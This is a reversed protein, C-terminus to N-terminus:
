AGHVDRAVLTVGAETAARCFARGFRCSRIRSAPLPLGHRHERMPVRGGELMSSLRAARGASFCISATLLFSISNFGPNSPFTVPQLRLFARGLDLVAHDRLQSKDGIVHGVNRRHPRQRSQLIETTAPLPQRPLPLLSLRSRDGSCPIGSVFKFQRECAPIRGTAASLIGSVCRFQLSVCTDSRDGSALNCSDRLRPSSSCVLTVAAPTAARCFARGLQLISHSSDPWVYDGTLRVARSCM